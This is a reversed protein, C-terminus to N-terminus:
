IQSFIDADVEALRSKIKNIDEAWGKLEVEEKLRVEKIKKVVTEIKEIKEKIQIFNKQSSQFKDIRVFIPENSTSPQPTSIIPAPEVKKPLTPIPPLTPSEPVTQKLSPMPPIKSEEETTERVHLGQPIEMHVENEGPSPVGVVASEVMEQNLNGNKSSVPFSPLEPLNKKPSEEKPKPIEPLAPAKPISPIKENKTFLGM